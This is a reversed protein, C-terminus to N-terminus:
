SYGCPKGFSVLDQLWKGFTNNSDLASRLLLNYLFCYCFHSSLGPVLLWLSAWYCLKIALKALTYPVGTDLEHIYESHCLNSYWPFFQAHTWFVIVYKIEASSNGNAWSLYWQNRTQLSLLPHAPTSAYQSQSDQTTWLLTPLEHGFLSLKTRIIICIPRM